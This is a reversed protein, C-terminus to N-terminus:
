GLGFRKLMNERIVPGNFVSKGSARRLRSFRRGTRSARIQPAPPFGHLPNQNGPGIPAM